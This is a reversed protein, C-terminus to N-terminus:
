RQTRGPWGKSGCHGARGWRKRGRCRGQAGGQPRAHPASGHVRPRANNSSAPVSKRKRGRTSQVPKAQKLATARALLADREQPNLADRVLVAVLAARVGVQWNGKIVGRKKLFRQLDPKNSQGEHKKLLEAAAQKESV